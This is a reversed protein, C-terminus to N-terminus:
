VSVKAPLATDQARSPHCAARRPQTGKARELHFMSHLGIGKM